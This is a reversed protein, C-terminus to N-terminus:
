SLRLFLIIVYLQPTPVTGTKYIEGCRDSQDSGEDPFHFCMLSDHSLHVFCILCMLYFALNFYTYWYLFHSMKIRKKTKCENKYGSDKM